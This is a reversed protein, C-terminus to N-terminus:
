TLDFQHDAAYEADVWLWGMVYAGEPSVEGSVSVVACDDVEIEGDHHFRRRAAPIYQKEDASQRAAFFDVCDGFTLGPIAGLLDACRTQATQTQDAM